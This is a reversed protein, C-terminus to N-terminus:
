QNPITPKQTGLCRTWPYRHIAPLRLLPRLPPELSPLLSSRFLSQDRRVRCCHFPYSTFVFDVAVLCMRDRPEKEVTSLVIHLHIICLLLAYLTRKCQLSHVNFCLNMIRRYLLSGAMYLMTGAGLIFYHVRRQIYLFKLTKKKDRYQVTLFYKLHSILTCHASVNSLIRTLFSAHKKGHYWLSGVLYLVWYQRYKVDM